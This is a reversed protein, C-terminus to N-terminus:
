EGTEYDLQPDPREPQASRARTSKRKALPFEPGPGYTVNRGREALSTKVLLGRVVMDSLLRSTSSPDLDLMLRVVRANIQGCEAVLALVKRDSEDATRRRYTLM